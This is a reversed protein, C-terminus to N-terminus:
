LWVEAIVPDDNPHREIRHLGDPISQRAENLSNSVNWPRAEPEMTGEGICWRRVVVKGLFDSPGVYVVLMMM